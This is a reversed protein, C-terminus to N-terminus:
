SLNYFTEAHSFFGASKKSTICDQAEKLSDVYDHITRSKKSRFHNKIPFWAEEIPNFEPTYPPLYLVKLSKQEVWTKFLKAHHISSNDMILVDQCDLKALLQTELFAIFRNTDVPGDYAYLSQMGSIKLAGVISLNGGRAAPRKDYARQNKQSWARTPTMALNSGAEDLYVRNKVPVSEIQALFERKKRQYSEADRETARFTKKKAYARRSSYLAVHGIRVDKAGSKNAM